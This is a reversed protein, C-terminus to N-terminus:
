PIGLIIDYKIDLVNLMLTEQYKQINLTIPVTKTNMWGTSRIPSGDALALKYLKNKDYTKIYYKKICRPSIYNEIVGSDVM